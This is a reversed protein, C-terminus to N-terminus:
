FKEPSLIFNERVKANNRQMKPLIYNQNQHRVYDLALLITGYMADMVDFWKKLILKDVNVVQCNQNAILLTLL